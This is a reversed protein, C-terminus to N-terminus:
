SRTRCELQWVRTRIEPWKAPTESCTQMWSLRRLPKGKAALRWGLRRAPNGIMMVGAGTENKKAMSDRIQWKQMWRLLTGLSKRGGDASKECVGVCRNVM